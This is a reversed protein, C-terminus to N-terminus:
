SRGRCRRLRRWRATPRSIRRTTIEHVVGEALRRGRDRDSADEPASGIVTVYDAGDRVTAVHLRIDVADGDVSATARYTRLTTEEGLLGISREDVQSVNGVDAYQDQTLALLESLSVSRAPDVSENVNEIPQVAPSSVVLASPTPPAGSRRYKTVRFTAEVDKTAELEVDGSVSAHVATNLVTSGNRHEQYGTEQLAAGEVSAPEAEAVIPDGGGGGQLGGRFRSRRRARYVIACTM